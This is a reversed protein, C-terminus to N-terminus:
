WANPTDPKPTVWGQTALRDLNVRKTCKNSSKWSASKTSRFYCVFLVFFLELPTLIRVDLTGNNKGTTSKNSPKKPVTGKGSGAQTSRQVSDDRRSIASKLDQVIQCAEGSDNKFQRCKVLNHHNSLFMTFLNYCNEVVFKKVEDVAGSVPFDYPKLEQLHLILSFCVIVM